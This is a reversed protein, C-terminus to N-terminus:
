NLAAANNRMNQAQDSLGMKEFMAACKLMAKRRPVVCDADNYMLAVKLYSDILARRCNEIGDGNDKLFIDGRMLLAEASLPRSGEAVARKLCNELLSKRNTELLAQWYVPAIEGKYAFTIDEDLIIRATDFAKQPQKMQLYAEALYRVAPKDWQLMKYESIINSLGKVASSGTGSEVAKVLSDFNKPKEIELSDVKDLAYTVSIKGAKLEYAKARSNWKIDGKKVDGNSKIVGVVAWSSSVAFVAAVTMLLKKM